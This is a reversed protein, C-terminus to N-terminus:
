GGADYRKVLEDTIDVATGSYVVGGQSVELILTYGQESGIGECVTKLKTFLAGAKAEYAQSFESQAAMAAQQLEQQALQLERQKQQKADESLIMEQKQFEEVMGKFQKEKDQLRSQQGQQMTKLDAQIQQGEKVTQSAKQFDVVAINVQALAPTSVFLSLFLFIRIM